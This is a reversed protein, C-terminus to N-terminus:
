PAPAAAPAEPAPTAAPTAAAPAPAAVPAAAAGHTQNYLEVIAPTIDSTQAAYLVPTQPSSVDLVISYGNTTSFDTIVAMMKRGIENIADQEAQQFEATADENARNFVRTKDDIARLLKNRADDSLTAGQNRLQDQLASIETQQSELEARRPAFRGQLDQAAKQGDVSQAIAQQISIIAVKTGQQARSPAAFTMLVIVAIPAAFYKGTM